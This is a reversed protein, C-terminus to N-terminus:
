ELAPHKDHLRAGIEGWCKAGARYILVLLTGSIFYAVALLVLLPVKELILKVLTGSFSWTVLAIVGFLTPLLPWRNEM